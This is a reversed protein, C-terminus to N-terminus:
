ASIKLGPRAMLIKTAYGKNQAQAAAHAAMADLEDDSYRADQHFLVLQKVGCRGALDVTDALSSHGRGSFQAYDQPAYRADHIVLDAEAYLRSLKEDHDQLAQARDGYIEDDPCYAMKHGSSELIFGMTTGPHNAYFSTMAVGPFVEYREGRLEYLDLRARVKGAEPPRTELKPRLREALNEGSESAACFHVTCEAKALPAFDSLGETHAPHFHSLFFWIDKLPSAALERGAAAAGTGADFLITRGAAEVQVCPTKLGYRSSDQAAAGSSRCGWIVAQFAPSASASSLLAKIQAPFAEIDYPKAIFIDAGAEKAKIKDAPFSKASVVAIKLGSLEADAKIQRCLNLGDIGPMLIDLVVLDPRAQRIRQLANRSEGLLDVDFGAESLLSRALDGAIDDDEVIIIKGNM